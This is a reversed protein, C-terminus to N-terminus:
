LGPQFSCIRTARRAALAYFRGRRKRAGPRLQRHPRIEATPAHVLMVEPCSTVGLAAMLGIALLYHLIDIALNRYGLHGSKRCTNFRCLLSLTWARKM